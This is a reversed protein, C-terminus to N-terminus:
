EKLVVKAGQYFMGPELGALEALAITLMQLPIIEVLPLGAGEGNPITLTPLHTYTQHHLLFARARLRVLDSVLNQNLGATNAPGHFVLITLKPGTMELPGHRYEAANMAMTATKGAEALILAGTLIAAISPGRGLLILHEPLGIIEKLNEVEARWDALYGSIAQGAGELELQARGILDNMEARDAAAMALAALQTVALTNTYTRTSVTIEELANIPQVLDAAQALPSTLHNVTSLLCAPRTSKSRDILPILEASRGSQSTIWLLTRPTILSPAFHLLEAADVWMANLGRQALILWAPYVSYISAGMGTLIIRDFRGAHIDKSLAEIGSLDSQELASNLMEPQSLIESIYSSESM